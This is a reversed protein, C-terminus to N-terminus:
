KTAVALYAILDAVQAPDKIGDFQMKTGPVMMAPGAVWKALTDASWVIGSAYIANSYNFSILDGAARGFLGHLSPGVITVDAALSHCPACQEFVQKGRDVAGADQASAGGVAAAM